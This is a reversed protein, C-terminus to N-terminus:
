KPVSEAIANRMGKRHKGRYIVRQWEQRSIAQMDLYDSM